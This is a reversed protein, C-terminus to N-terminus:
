KPWKMRTFTKYHDRTYYSKKKGFEVVIRRATRRKGRVHRDIDYEKYNGKPLTNDWNEWRGGGEYGPKQQENHTVVWELIENAEPPVPYDIIDPYNNGPHTAEYITVAGVAVIVTAAVVVVPICIPICTPRVNVPSVINRTAILADSRTTQREGSPDTMVTPADAAYVYSGISPDDASSALPDTTLFRGLSPDYNRARLYYINTPDRLEGAFKMPNAPAQPDNASELRTAGFPEYEYTWETAGSASTLNVVSDLADYHYYFTSGGTTM